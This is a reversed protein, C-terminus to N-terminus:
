KTEESKTSDETKPEEAAPAPTEAKKDPLKGFQQEYQKLKKRQKWILIAMVPIGIGSLCVIGMIIFFLVKHGAGDSDDTNVATVEENTKVQEEDPTLVNENEM